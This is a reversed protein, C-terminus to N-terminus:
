SSVRNFSTRKVNHSRLKESREAPVCNQLVQAVLSGPLLIPAHSRFHLRTSHNENFLSNKGDELKGAKTVPPLQFFDGSVILQIGGFPLSSRRTSRAYAELQLLLKLHEPTFESTHLLSGQRLVACRDHLNRRHDSHSGQAMTRTSLEIHKWSRCILSHYDRWHQM